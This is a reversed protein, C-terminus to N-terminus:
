SLTVNYEIRRPKICKSNIGVCLGYEGPKLQYLNVLDHLERPIYVIEECTLNVNTSRYM